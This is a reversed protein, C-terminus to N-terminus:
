HFKSMKTFFVDTQFKNEFTRMEEEVIEKDNSMNGALFKM